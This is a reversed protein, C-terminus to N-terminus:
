GDNSGEFREVILVVDVIEYGRGLFALHTVHVGLSLFYSNDHSISGQELAAFRVKHM